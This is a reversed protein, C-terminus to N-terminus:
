WEPAAEALRGFRIPKLYAFNAHSLDDRPIFRWGSM